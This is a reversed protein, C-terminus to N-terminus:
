KELKFRIITQAQAAVAVGDVTGPRFRWQSVCNVVANEFVGEPDAELIEVHEVLGDRTVTFRIKVWGELGLRAARLPYVPPVKALATLPADLESSLYLGKPATIKMSFHSLDPMELSDSFRPLDPNLEFPLRPRVPAPKPASLRALPSMPSAEQRPKPPKAPKRKRPPPEPRKVRVVQVARVDELIEPQGPVRQILGPMIGFLFINLVLSLVIALMWGMAGFLRGSGAVQAM